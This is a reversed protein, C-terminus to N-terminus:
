STSTSLTPLGGIKLAGGMSVKGDHPVGFSFGKIYGPFVMKFKGPVVITQELTSHNSILYEVIKPGQEVQYNGEFPVEGMEVMGKLYQKIRSAHSSVDIDDASMSIEGINTLEVLSQETSASSASLSTIVLKAGLGYIGAM